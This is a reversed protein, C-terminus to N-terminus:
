IKVKSNLFWVGTSYQFATKLYINEKLIRYKNSQRRKM